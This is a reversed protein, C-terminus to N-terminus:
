HRKMINLRHNLIKEKIFIEYTLSSANEPIRDQYFTIDYDPFSALSNGYCLFYDGSKEFRATLSIPKYYSFLSKINLPPNDNNNVVILLHKVFTESLNFESLDFSNLYGSYLLELGELNDTYISDLSGYISIPRYFDFDNEVQIKIKSLPTKYKFSANLYTKKEEKITQIDLKVNKIENWITSYNKSEFYSANSLIPANTAKIKLKFFTAESPSFVLNTFSFATQSNNISVIRYNTLIKNWDKGNKSAELEIRWDFNNDVFKLKIERIQKKSIRNLEFVYFGDKQVVDKFTFNATKEKIIENNRNILYPAEVTDKGKIQIIRIDSLDDNARGLVSEELQIKHWTSSPQQIKSTYKYADFQSWSVSTLLIFLLFCFKNKM